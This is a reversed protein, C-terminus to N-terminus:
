EEETNFYTYSVLEDTLKGEEYNLEQLFKDFEKERLKEHMKRDMMVENLRKRVAEMQKQAKSVAIMQDRVLVKMSTISQKCSKIENINLTGLSLDRLQREYDAQRKIVERLKMQEENYRATALGLNAKEQEELKQKIDLINQMRYVFKAM